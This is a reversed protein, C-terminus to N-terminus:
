SPTVLPVRGTRVPDRHAYGPYCILRFEFANSTAKRLMQLGDANVIAPFGSLTAVRIADPDYAYADTIPMFKDATVEVMGRPTSLEIKRYSFTAGEGDLARQGRGELSDSLPQWQEPHLVIKKAPKARSAMRVILKKLRTELGLGNVDSAVLRVGSRRIMNITRDVGEFSEGASPDAAPNWAGFGLLIRNPTSGGGFDSNRFYYMTGTWSAPTAATGGSTAAVTFQGTGYNVKIVYALTPAGILSDTTATGPNASAVLIQGVEFNVIDAKNVLSQVGSSDTGSGLSHGQDRLMYSSMVDGFARYLGDIEEKKDEFFAGLDSASAAMVKDGIDVHASYDGWAVTFDIGGINGGSTQEAGTQADAVAAALGQPNRDIVPIIWRRGTGRRGTDLSDMFVHDENVTRAVEDKTYNEKLFADFTTLTSGVVM